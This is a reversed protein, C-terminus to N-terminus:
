AGAVACVINPGDDLVYKLHEACVYTDEYRREEPWTMWEARNPCGGPPTAVKVRGEDTIFSVFLCKIMTM